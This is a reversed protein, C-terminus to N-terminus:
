GERWLDLAAHREQFDVGVGGQDKEVREMQDDDDDEGRPHRLEQQLQQQLKLAIRRELEVEDSM